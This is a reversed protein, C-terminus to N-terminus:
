WRGPAGSTNTFHMHWYWTVADVHSFRAGLSSLQLWYHWDEGSFRPNEPPPFTAKKAWETRVLTTIPFTHPHLPDWQRGRHPLIETCPRDGNRREYWPWVVDAANALAHTYLTELHHPLLEDDDDLFAVWETEVQQLGRNRTPGAGEHGEDVVIVIKDAKRTQTEVSPITRNALMDARPPITPILVTIDSM